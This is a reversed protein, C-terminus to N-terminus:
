REYAYFGEGSKRGLKGAAVMDRLIQPPEFREGLTQALYEAISLRVDLGVLDTTKLPGAAHRYGLVMANDIDEASAVGDELMCMAELALVLGLRSSAFGPSDKVVIPTKELADVWGKVRETVEASTAAGRVIEVLSSPPVPNFFHMGLFQAPRRLASALDDISLSSMNSALCSEEPIIREVRALTEKKLDPIEPVAEVALDVDALDGSDVSFTVRTLVDDVDLEASRRASLELGKRVREEAAAALDSDREIVTVRAGALAFSQAIGAGMTGGGIVGIHDNTTMIEGKQSFM